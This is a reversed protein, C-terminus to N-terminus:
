PMKGFTLSLSKMVEAACTVEGTEMQVEKLLLAGDGTLVLVGEGQRVQIVRGPVRGVYVPIEVREASWVRMKEGALYSYAGPYPHSVARILNFIEATSLEWHIENDELTRKCTYTAQSHDQPFRPATGNLLGPLSRTFVGLYAETVRETVHSITDMPGIPVIEQDIIDGADVEGAIEFLTVGTQTAGNVIAWVTPSFGRYAPLLSDHFVFTGLRPRTYVEAPVMYRWNVAFAIDVKEGSWFSAVQKGGLQRTEFFRGGHDHTMEKIEDLFPPEWPEERFSFVTVKVGPQLEFLNALVRRGRQTAILMVIHM